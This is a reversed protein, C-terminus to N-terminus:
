KILVMSKTIDYQGSRLRYFYLGSVQGAANWALRHNGLQALGDYLTAVKQGLINFIDLKLYDTTTLSFGISTEANFPNPYNQELIFNTPLQPTIDGIATELSDLLCFNASANWYLWQGNGYTWCTDGPWVSGLWIFKCDTPTQQSYGQVSVWGGNIDICDDFMAEYHYVTGFINDQNTIYAWTDTREPSVVFSNIMEGPHNNSGDTWFAVEFEMPDELCEGWHGGSYISNCGWFSIGCVTGVSSPLDDYVRYNNQHLDSTMLVYGQLYRPGPQGWVTNAPCVLPEFDDSTSVFLYFDGESFGNGDVVILIEQGADLAVNSVRAQADQWNDNGCIFDEPYRPEIPCTFNYLEIGADYSNTLVYFSYVGSDPAIWKYTVDASAGSDTTFDGIWCEPRGPYPGYDFGAGITSGFLIFPALEGSLDLCDTCDGQDLLVERNSDLQRVNAADEIFQGKAGFINPTNPNVDEAFLMSNSALLVLLGSIIMRLKM